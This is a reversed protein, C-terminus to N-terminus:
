AAVASATPPRALTLNLQVLLAATAIALMPLGPSPLYLWIAPAVWLLLLAPRLQAQPWLWLIVAGTVIFEYYHLHVPLLLTVLILVAYKVDLDTSLLWIRVAACVALAAFAYNLQTALTHSLGSAKLTGYLHALSEPRIKGSLLNFAHAERLGDFFAAWVGFGFALTAVAVLAIFTAIGAFIAQYRRELVLFVPLALCFQPKYSLLALIAGARVPHKALAVLGGVLILATLLGNQGSLLNYWFGPFGLIYLPPVKPFLRRSVGYYAGISLALYVGYALKYPMLAFGCSIFLLLLPPYFWPLSLSEPAGLLQQQFATLLKPNFIDLVHGDLAMRGATWFCYFDMGMPQNFNGLPVNYGVVIGHFIIWVGFMCTFGNIALPILPLPSPKTM